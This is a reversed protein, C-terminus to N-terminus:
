GKSQKKNDKKGKGTKKVLMNKGKGTKKVLSVHQEKLVVKYWMM